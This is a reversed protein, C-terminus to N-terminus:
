TKDEHNEGGTKYFSCKGKTVCLMESLAICDPELRCRYMICDTKPEHAAPTAKKKARLCGCSTTNLSTLRNSSVYAIGGCKCECKWLLGFTPHKKDSLEVVKLMGFTQGLLDKRKM